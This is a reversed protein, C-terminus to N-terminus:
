GWGKGGERRGGRRERERGGEGGRGGGEGEELTGSSTRSWISKEDSGSLTRSSMSSTRRVNRQDM